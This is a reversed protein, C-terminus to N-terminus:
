NILKEDFEQSANVFIVPLPYKARKKAISIETESNVVELCIQRDAALIDCRGSGNAFIAECYFEENNKLLYKAIQFKMNIHEETENPSWKLANKNRNGIRILQATKWRTRLLEAKNM